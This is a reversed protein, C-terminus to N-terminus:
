HCRSRPNPSGRTRSAWSRPCSRAWSSSGTLSGRPRRVSRCVAVAAPGAARVDRVDPRDAGTEAGLGELFLSWIVEYTGGAFNGGANIVLAAILGRNLLSRARPRSAARDLRSRRRHRRRRPRSRRRTRRSNPGDHSPAPQTRVGDGQRAPRDRDRWVAAVASFVFVFAIGGFAGAGFAGIAPGILLGGMQAAGYLGFAEGRREPPTADTLYGRAAPDYM